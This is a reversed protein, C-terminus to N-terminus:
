GEALVAQEKEMERKIRLLKTHLRASNSFCGEWWGLFQNIEALTFLPRKKTAQIAM